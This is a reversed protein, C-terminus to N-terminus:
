LRNDLSSVLRLLPLDVFVIDLFKRAADAVRLRVAGSQIGDGAKILKGARTRGCAVGGPEAV